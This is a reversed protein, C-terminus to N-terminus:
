GVTRCRRNEEILSHDLHTLIGNKRCCPDSLLYAITKELEVIAGYFGASPLRWKYICAAIHFFYKFRNKNDFLSVVFLM